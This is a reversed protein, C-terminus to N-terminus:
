RALGCVDRAVERVFAALRFFAAPQPRSADSFSVTGDETRVRYRLIAQRGPPLAVGHEAPKRLDRVLERARLLREDGLSHEAGGNCRATGGDGVLLSLRAGPIVGSREVVFLDASPTGCGAAAVTVALAAGARAIWTRRL